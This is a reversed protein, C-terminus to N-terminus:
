HLRHRAEEIAEDILKAQETDGIKKILLRRTAELAYGVTIDHVNRLADSELQKVRDLAQQKRQEVKQELEKAAERTLREADERAHQLIREIEKEAEDHQLERRRLLKEAEDLLRRSEDLNRAIELNRRDLAGLIMRSLPKALVGVACVFAVAVWFTPDEFLSTM